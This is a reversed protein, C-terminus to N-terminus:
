SRVVEGSVREWMRRKEEREQPTRADRSYLAWVGALAFRLADTEKGGLDDAALVEVADNSGNLAPSAYAASSVPSGNPAGDLPTRLVSSSASTSSDLSGLRGRTPFAPTAPPAFSPRPGPGPSIGRMGNTGANSPSTFASASSTPPTRLPFYSSGPLLPHPKDVASPSRPSRPSLPINSPAILSRTLTIPTPPGKQLKSARPPSAQLNLPAPPLAKSLASTSNALHNPKPSSSVSATSPSSTARPSTSPPSAESSLSKVPSTPHSPLAKTVDSARRAHWNQPSQSDLPPSDDPGVHPTRTSYLSMTSTSFRSRNPDPQTPSIGFHSPSLPPLLSSFYLHEGPQTPPALSPAPSLSQSISPSSPSSANAPTITASRDRGPSPSAPQSVQSIAPSIVPDTHNAEPEEGIQSDGYSNWYAADDNKEQQEHLDVQGVSGEDEDESWGDWFDDATGYAGPTAAGNGDEMEGPTKKKKGKTEATEPGEAEQEPDSLSFASPPDPPNRSGFGPSYRQFELLEPISNRISPATLSHLSSTAADVAETLTPYWSPRRRGNTGPTSIEGAPLALAQLELFTWGPRTDDKDEDGKEAWDAAVEAATTLPLADEWLLVVGLSGEDSSHPLSLPIICKTEELDVSYHPDGLVVDDFDGAEVLERRRTTVEEDQTGTTWYAEDEPKLALYHIAQRAPNALLIPPLPSPFPSLLIPLISLLFPQPPPFHAPTKLDSDEM